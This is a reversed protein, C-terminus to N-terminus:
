SRVGGPPGSSRQEEGSSAPSSISGATSFVSKLKLCVIMAAASARAETMLAASRSRTTAIRRRTRSAIPRGSPRQPFTASAISASSPRGSPGGATAPLRSRSSGSSSGAGPRRSRRRWRRGTRPVSAPYSRLLLPPTTVRHGVARRSDAQGEQGERGSRARQGCGEAAPGVHRTRRAIRPPLLPVPRPVPYREPSSRVRLGHPRPACRSAAAPISRGRPLLGAERPPQRLAV